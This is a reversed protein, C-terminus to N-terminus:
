NTCKDVISKFYNMNPITSDIDWFEKPVNNKNKILNIFHYKNYLFKIQFNGM